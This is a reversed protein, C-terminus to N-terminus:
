LGLAYLAQAMHAPDTLFTATGDPQTVRTRQINIRIITEQQLTHNSGPTYNAHVRNLTIFFQIGALKQQLYRHLSLYQSNILAQIYPTIDDMRGTPDASIQETFRCFGVMDSGTPSVYEATFPGMDPIPRVSIYTILHNQWTPNWHMTEPRNFACPIIRVALRHSHSHHHGFTNNHAGTTITTAFQSNPIRQLQGHRLRESIQTVAATKQLPIQLQTELHNLTGHLENGRLDM